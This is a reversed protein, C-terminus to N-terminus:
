AIWYGNSFETPVGGSQGQTRMFWPCRCSRDLWCRRASESVCRRGRCSSPVPYSCLLVCGGRVSDVEFATWESLTSNFEFDKM